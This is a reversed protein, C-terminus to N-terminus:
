IKFVSVADSLEGAQERLSEAAAAAEEVLAANQQTVQDMQAIAQNVQEIGASQESSACAIEEIIDTVRKVSSVIEDMTKGAQDVLKSGTEVKNVSAEILAKVEKAADASRKALNRVETAVVAFGRGQEGARAAEVAANLALINTQFAIGDIVGIIDTIKKSQDNIDGMTTIVSAVVSGGKVAIDAASHALESAQRANDANQKVTSTLEEMASATEELSSAQQETRSSLDQNGAAIESAATAITDTGNRVRTVISVLNETMYKLSALLKGTEDNSTIDINKTLDGEAVSNSTEVAVNIPRTISRVLWIGNVLALFLGFLVGSSCAIFVLDYREQADKYEKSAQVLQYQILDNMAKEADIFRKEMTGHLLELALTSDKDRLAQIAPKLGNDILAQRNEAFKDVLKMEEPGPNTSLYKQRLDGMVTINKEINTIVSLAEDPDTDTAAKAVMLQNVTLLRMIQDLYGISMLRTDYISKIRSNSDSISYLGILAGVVLQFALFTIVFVLRTKITINKFMNEGEYYTALTLGALMNAIKNRLLLVM